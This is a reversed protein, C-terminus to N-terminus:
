RYSIQTSEDDSGPPLELLLSQKEGPGIEVAMQSDPLSIRLLQRHRLM